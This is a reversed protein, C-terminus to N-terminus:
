TIDTRRRPAATVAPESGGLRALRPASERQILARLGERVPPSNERAVAAGLAAVSSPLEAAARAAAWRENESGQTLARLVAEEDPTPPKTGEAPKRILPM